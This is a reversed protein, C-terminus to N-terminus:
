KAEPNFTPAEELARYRLDTYVGCECDLWAPLLGIRTHPWSVVHLAGCSPCVVSLATEDGGPKGRDWGVIVARERAMTM